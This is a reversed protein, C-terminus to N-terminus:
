IFTDSLSGFCFILLFNLTTSIFINLHFHSLILCSSILFSLILSLSIHKHLQLFSELIHLLSPQLIFNFIVIDFITNIFCTYYFNHHFNSKYKTYMYLSSRHIIYCFPYILCLITLGSFISFSKLFINLFSNLFIEFNILRIVNHCDM